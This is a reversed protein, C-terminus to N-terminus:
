ASEDTMPGDIGLCEFIERFDEAHLGGEEPAPFTQIGKDRASDLERVDDDILLIQELGEEGLYALSNSPDTDKTAEKDDFCDPVNM